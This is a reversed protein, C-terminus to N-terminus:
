IAVGGRPIVLGRPEFEEVPADRAPVAGGTHREIIPGVIERNYREFQERSDWVEVVEFGEATPRAVHVILGDANTGVQGVIDAHVADYMEVPSPVKIVIGYAM